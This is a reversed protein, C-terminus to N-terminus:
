ARLTELVQEARAILEHRDSPAEVSRQITELVARAEDRLVARRSPADTQEAVMQLSALLRHLVTVNGQANRRIQDYATKALSEFTAGHTFVCVEADAGRRASELRRRCVRLLIAGLYDVSMSATTTDNIGPSLGKLAVDVLQRMGFAPDEEVTRQPGITFACRLQERERTGPADSARVSMLPAGEVAFDGVGREMRILMSRDAALRQLADIDVTQVYGTRTSAISNWRGDDEPPAPPADDKGRELPRPFLRNVAAITDDHVSALIEVAQISRSIHHIFFILFAVGVLALVVALSIAVSPVFTGEDEGGRVTRLVVLCYAFVGLFVGLVAQNKRSRMFNRLVRPSYQSSTLSLAVLTISFVVGAVTIMSGAIAQLLGRAGQAGVGFLRPWALLVSQPIWDHVRIAVIALGIHFVVILGPVFWFTAGIAWGIQRLRKM